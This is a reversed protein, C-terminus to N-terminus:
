EPLMGEIWDLAEAERLEDKPMQRYGELLDEDTPCFQVLSRLFHCFTVL